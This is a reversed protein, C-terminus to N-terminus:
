GRVKKMSDNLKNRGQEFKLRKTEGRVFGVIENM